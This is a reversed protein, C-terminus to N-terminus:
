SLYSCVPENLIHYVLCCSSCTATQHVKYNSMSLTPLTGVVKTPVTKIALHAAPHKAECALLTCHARSKKRHLNGTRLHLRAAPHQLARALHHLRLAPQQLTHAPHHMTFATHQARSHQLCSIM